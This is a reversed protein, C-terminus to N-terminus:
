VQFIMRGFEVQKLSSPPDIKKARGADGSRARAHRAGQIGFASNRTEARRADIGDRV